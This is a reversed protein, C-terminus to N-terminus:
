RRVGQSLVRDRARNNANIRADTRADLQENGIFVQVVPAGTTVPALSLTQGSPLAFSPAVTAAISEVTAEIQPLMRRMGIDLGDMTDRGIRMMVKSPSGIDLVGEFAGSVREAISRAVSLLRDVQSLIGGILGRLIDAGVSFLLNSAVGFAARIEGPLDRFRGVVTSLAGSIESLFTVRVYNVIDGLRGLVGSVASSVRERFEEFKQLITGIKSSTERSADAIARVYQNDFIKAVLELAPAVITNLVFGVFKLIVTLTQLLAKSFEIAFPLQDELIRVIDLLIPGLEKLVPILEPGVEEIFREVLPALEKIVPALQVFAEQLLPLANTVLTDAVRAVAELITQFEKSGTLREFAESIRELIDFLGRGDTTLGRFINGLGGFINEGVRKLQGLAKVAEDIEDELAGTEFARTLDEAMQTAATDIRRTLKDLAPASAAALQGLATVVQGPLGKLNELGKVAGDLAVGLTGDEALNGAADAAGTAMENLVTATSNLATRLVPLTRNSLDRLTADFDLFLRNQVEQQVARLGSRMSRLEVVFKRAEPALRKLAKELEEPKTDPDFAATIADEVGVMALKLTGAALTVALMGSVAVASAPAIEAVAGAMAVLVPLLSGIAAALSGATVAFRGASLAASGASQAFDILRRTSQRLANNDVRTEIEIPDISREINRAARTLQTRVTRITDASDVVAQLTIPDVANGSSVSDVVQNVQRTLTRVVERQELLADVEISDVSNEVRNIVTTLEADLQRLAQATDVGVSVDVSDASNEAQQIIRGLDRELEPLTGATSVVLDVEAQSAM